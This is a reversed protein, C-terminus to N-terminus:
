LSPEDGSTCRSVLSHRHLDGWYLTYGEVEYRGAQEGTVWRRDESRGDSSILATREGGAAAPGASGVPASVVQGAGHVGHWIM